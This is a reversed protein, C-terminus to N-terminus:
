CDPARVLQAISATNRAENRFQSAFTIGKQSVHLNKPSFIATFM